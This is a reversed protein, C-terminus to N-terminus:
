AKVGAVRRRKPACLLWEVFVMNAVLGFWRGLEEIVYPLEGYIVFVPIAVLATTAAGFAIGYCRMMWARHQAVRRQWIAWVAMALALFTGASTVALSATRWWGGVPPYVAIMWLGSLAM